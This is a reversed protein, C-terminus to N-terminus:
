ALLPNIITLLYSPYRCYEGTGGRGAWGWVVLAASLISLRVATVMGALLKEELRRASFRVTM